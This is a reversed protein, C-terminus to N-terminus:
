FKIMLLASHLHGILNEECIWVGDSSIHLRGHCHLEVWPYLILKPNHGGVSDTCTVGTCWGPRDSGFFCTGAVEDGVSLPYINM